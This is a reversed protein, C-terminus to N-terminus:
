VCSTDGGAKVSPQKSENWFAEQHLENCFVYWEKSSTMITKGCHECARWMVEPIYVM